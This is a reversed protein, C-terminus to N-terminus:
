TNKNKGFNMFVAALSALGMITGPIFSLPAGMYIGYVVLGGSVLVTIFGLIQGSKALRIGADVVKDDQNHRHLAEREALALIREAAGPLAEDYRKFEASAPLPGSISYHREELKQIQQNEDQNYLKHKQQVGM